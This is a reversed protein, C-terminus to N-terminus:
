AVPIPLGFRNKRAIGNFLRWNAAWTRRLRDQLWRARASISRPKAMVARMVELFKGVGILNMVRKMNYALVNLAMETAVKPKTICLFHTWGMWAKITGFPHEVTSRRMTM